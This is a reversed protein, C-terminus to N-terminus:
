ITGKKAKLVVFLPYKTKNKLRRINKAVSEELLPEKVSEVILGSDIALEKWDSISMRWVM